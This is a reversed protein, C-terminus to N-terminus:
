VLIHVYRTSCSEILSFQLVFIRVRLWNIYLASHAANFMVLHYLKIPLTHYYKTNSFQHHFWSIYMGVANVWTTFVWVHLM